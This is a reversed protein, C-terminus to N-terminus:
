ILVELNEKIWNPSIGRAVLSNIIGNIRGIEELNAEINSDECIKIILAFLNLSM